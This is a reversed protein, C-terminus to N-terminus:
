KELLIAVKAQKLRDSTETNNQTKEKNILNLLKNVAKKDPIIGAMDNTVLPTNEDVFMINDAFGKDVAEQATLWTENNMMQLLDEQALGTKLQYANAISVDTGNLVDANHAMDDANGSTSGFAAKHIMIRATPAINVEDGAMAIVSAASAAIGQINVTVKSNSARLTSYIESAAFVDGGGSAINVEVDEDPDFNEDNLVTDITKPSTYDM